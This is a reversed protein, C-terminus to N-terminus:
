IHFQKILDYLLMISFDLLTNNMYIPLVQLPFTYLAIDEKYKSNLM